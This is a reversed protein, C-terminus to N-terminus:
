RTEIPATEDVSGSSLRDFHAAVEAPTARLLADTLTQQGQNAAFQQELVQQNAFLEGLWAGVSKPDGLKPLLNRLDAAMEAAQQYRRAPNKALAKKIIGFINRPIRDRRRAPREHAIAIATKDLGDRKFPHSLTLLSYLVIGAAWIDGTPGFSGDTYAEPPLYLPTGMVRDDDGRSFVRAYGALGFDVLKVGGDYTLIINDPKVDRHVLRKGDSDPTHARALGTCLEAV